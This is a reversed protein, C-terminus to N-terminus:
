KEHNLMLNSILLYDDGPIGFFGQRFLFGWSSKDKIFSLKEILPRIPVYRCPFFHMNRRFPKFDPSVETQYVSEDKVQGIATFQQLPEAFGYRVKPSYFLVGDGAAMRALPARKGHNAQCFGGEV